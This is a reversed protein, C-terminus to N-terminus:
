EPKYVSAEVPYGGELARIAVTTGIPVEFQPLIKEVGHPLTVPIQHLRKGVVYGIGNAELDFKSSNKVILQVTELEDTVSVRRVRYHVRCSGNFYRGVFRHQKIQGLEDFDCFYFDVWEAGLGQPAYSFSHTPKGYTAGSYQSKLTGNESAELLQEDTLMDAGSPLCYIVTSSTDATWELDINFANGKFSVTGISM